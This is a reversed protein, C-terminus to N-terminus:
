CREAASLVTRRLGIIVVAGVILHLSALGLKAGIGIGGDLPGSLSTLCIIVAVVTWVNRANRTRRELIALLGWGAFAAVASTVFVYVANVEIRSGQQAVLEIGALPGLIAWGVLAAAVAVGVVALCSRGPVRVAGADSSLGARPTTKTAM